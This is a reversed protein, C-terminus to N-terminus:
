LGFRGRDAHWNYNIESQSLARNYLRIIMWGGRWNQISSFGGGFSDQEQNLFWGGDAVGSIVTINTSDTVYAGNKYMKGTDSGDRRIIWQFKERDSYSMTTNGQHRQVTTANQQLLFYNHDSAGDSMSMGYHTASSHPYLWMELTYEGSTLQAADANLSIYDSTQNSDPYDFIGDTYPNTGTISADNDYQSLDYWTTGSGPYSSENGADLWMVLGERACETGGIWTGTADTAGINIGM